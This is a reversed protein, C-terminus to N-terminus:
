PNRAAPELGTLIAYAARVRAEIPYSRNALLVVALRRAPVFAVFAAFGNTSGTKDILVQAGPPPPPVIAQAPNGDFIMSVSNGELLPELEVPYPYQEWVLDQTMPGIRYHGVRTQALARRWPEEVDIAGWQAQVFRLLDAATTRIGYTEAAIVGGALRIPQGQSTYGQAYNQAQQAPVDLFTHRLGFAPFLRGQMLAVFDGGLSRAAVQGLLGIGPNSYTRVTGPPAAPKWARYYALLADPTAVEDPLQLPLGGSTQTALNLLPVADVGGGRLAPWHRGPTDTWALKGLVQAYAALTATYTKTISGIEFLTQADVARGSARSAVGFEFTYARDGANIAVAMGPIDYQAMLPRISLGVLRDIASRPDAPVDDRASAPVAAGLAVALAAWAVPRGLRSGASRGPRM